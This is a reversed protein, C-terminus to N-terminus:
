YTPWDFKADDWKEARFQTSQTDENLKRALKKAKEESLGSRLVSESGDYRYVKLLWNDM